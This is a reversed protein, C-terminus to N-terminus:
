RLAAERSAKRAEPKEAKKKAIIELSAGAVSRTSSKTVNRRKKRAVQAEQDQLVFLTPCPLPRALTPAPPSSPSLISLPPAAHTRLSQAALLERQCATQSHSVPVGGAAQSARQSNMDMIEMPQRSAETSAAEQGCTHASLAQCRCAAGNAM